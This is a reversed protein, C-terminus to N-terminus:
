ILSSPTLTNGAGSVCNYTKKVDTYKNIKMIVCIEWFETM